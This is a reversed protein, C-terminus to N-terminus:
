IECSVASEGTVNDCTDTNSGGDFADVGEGGTLTDAQGRGSLTDDGDNGSLSNPNADGTLTDDFASGSLNEIGTLVDGAADGGKSVGTNLNVTVAAPSYFYNALDVGDGGDITDGGGMGLFFNDGTDGTLTDDFASGLAAEIGSITDGDADGGSASGAALDIAVSAPSTRYDVSDIGDGGTLEDSGAGGALVDDDGLGVLTNDSADGTLQDPFASGRVNEIGAFRDGTADGGIATGAGLDIVVSNASADYALTDSGGGGDMADEGQGGTLTDAGNEGFLVDNGGAGDITDKGGRGCIVDDGSTGTLVDKGPTGVITCVLPKKVYVDQDGTDQSDFSDYGTFAIASGTGNVSTALSASGEVGDKSASVLSVDGTVLDKVYLDWNPDTDAPDLNTAESAFTVRKGNGSLHPQISQGNAKVGADNTSALTLEGTNLDKVYVDFATDTDSPDLNDSASEFTVYRGGGSISALQSNGDGKVGTSSTSALFTTGTSIDKVFVDNTFDGDGPDLNSSSSGFAVRTGDKSISAGISNGNGKVGASSTSALVLDGTGLKKVYIDMAVDSDGPDLNSSNSEFAVRQGNRSLSSNRSEGNGKVGTDSTSALTLSSTGLDKVYVDDGPDTDGPDLNTSQSGFAM